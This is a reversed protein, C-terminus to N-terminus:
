TLRTKTKTKTKRGRDKTATNKQKQLHEIVVALQQTTKASWALAFSLKSIRATDSSISGAVPDNTVVVVM